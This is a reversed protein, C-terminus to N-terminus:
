TIRLLEKLIKQMPKSDEAKPKLFVVVEQQSRGHQINKCLCLSLLDISSALIPVLSFKMTGMKM